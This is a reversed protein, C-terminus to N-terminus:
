SCFEATEKSVYKVAYPKTLDLDEIKEVHAPITAAMQGPFATWPVLTGDDKSAPGLILWAETAPLKPLEETTALYPGHSGGPVLFIKTRDFAPALAVHEVADVLLLPLRTRYYKCVPLATGAPLQDAPVEEWGCVAWAEKTPPILGWQSGFPRQRFFTAHHKPNVRELYKFADNILGALEYNTNIACGWLSTRRTFYATSM